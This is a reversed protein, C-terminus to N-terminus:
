GACGASVAPIDWKVLEAAQLATSCTFALLLIGSIPSLFSNSKKLKM